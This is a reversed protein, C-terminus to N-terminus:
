SPEKRVHKLLEQNISKLYIVQSKLIDLDTKVFSLEKELGAIRDDPNLSGGVQILILAQIFGHLLRRNSM